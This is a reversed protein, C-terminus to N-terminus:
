RQFRKTQKVMAIVFTEGNPADTQIIIKQESLDVIKFDETVGIPFNEEINPFNKGLISKLLSLDVPKDNYSVSKPWSHMDDLRITLSKSDAQWIGTGDVNYLINISNVGSNIRLGIEGIFNYNNNKFYETTGHVKITGGAIPYSYKSLWIGHIHSEASNNPIFNSLFAPFHNLNGLFAGSIGILVVASLIKKKYKAFMIIRQSNLSQVLGSPREKCEWM